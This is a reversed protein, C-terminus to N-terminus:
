EEYILEGNEEIASVTRGSKLDEEVNDMLCGIVEDRYALEDLQNYDEPDFDDPVEMEICTSVTARITVNVTKM